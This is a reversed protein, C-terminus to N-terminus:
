DKDSENHDGTLYLYDERIKRLEKIPFTLTIEIFQRDFLNPGLLDVREFIIKWIDLLDDSTYRKEREAAREDALAQFEAAAEEVIQQPIKKMKM